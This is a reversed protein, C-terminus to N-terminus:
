APYEKVYFTKPCYDIQPSRVKAVLGNKFNQIQQVAEVNSTTEEFYYSISESKEELIEYRRRLAENKLGEVVKYSKM